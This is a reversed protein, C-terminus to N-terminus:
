GQSRTYNNFAQHHHHRHGSWLAFPYSNELYLFCGTKKQFNAHKSHLKGRVYSIRAIIQM